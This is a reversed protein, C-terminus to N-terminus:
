VGKVEVFQPLGVMILHGCCKTQNPLQHFNSQRERERERERERYIYIDGKNKVSGDRVGPQHQTTGKVCRIQRVIKTQFGFWIIFIQKAPALFFSVLEEM